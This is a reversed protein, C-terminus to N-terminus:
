ERQALRASRLKRRARLLQREATRPTISRLKATGAYSYGAAHLALLDAERDRLQAAAIADRAALLELCDDTLSGAVLRLAGPDETLETWRRGRRDLKIAERVATRRLWGILRDRPPQYNLMQMWAFACADEINAHSTRVQRGVRSRLIRAHLEFLQAEDGLLGSADATM